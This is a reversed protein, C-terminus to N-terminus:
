EKEKAQDKGQFPLVCEPQNELLYERGEAMRWCGREAQRGENRVGCLGSTAVM